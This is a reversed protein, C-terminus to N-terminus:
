SKCRSGISVALLCHSVHQSGVAVRCGLSFYVLKAGQDIPIGTNPPM